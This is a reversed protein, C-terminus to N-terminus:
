RGVLELGSDPSQLGSTPGMPRRGRDDQCGGIAAQIDWENGNARKYRWGSRFLKLLNHTLAM